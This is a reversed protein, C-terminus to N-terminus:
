RSARVKSSLIVPRTLLSNKKWGTKQTGNDHINITRPISHYQPKNELSSQQKKYHVKITLSKMTVNMRIDIPVVMPSSWWGNTGTVHYACNSEFCLIGIARKMFRELRPVHHDVVPDPPEWDLVLPKPTWWAPRHFCLSAFTVCTYIYKCSIHIYQAIYIYLIIYIYIVNNFLKVCPCNCAINM